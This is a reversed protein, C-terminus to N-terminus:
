YSKIAWKESNTTEDTCGSSRQFKAIINWALNTFRKQQFGRFLSLYHIDAAVPNLGNVMINPKSDLDVQDGLSKKEM